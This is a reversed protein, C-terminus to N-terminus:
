KCSKLFVDVKHISNLDRPWIINLKFGISRQLNEMHNAYYNIAPSYREYVPLIQALSLMDDKKLQYCQEVFASHAGVVAVLISNQALASVFHTEESALMHYCYSNELQHRSMTVIVNQLFKEKVPKNNYKLIKEYIHVYNIKNKKGFINAAIWNLEDEITYTVVISM